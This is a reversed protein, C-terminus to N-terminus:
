DRENARWYLGLSSRFAVSRVLGRKLRLLHSAKIKEAGPQEESQSSMLGWQVTEIPRISPFADYKELGGGELIMTAEEAFAATGMDDLELKGVKHQTQVLYHVIKKLREVPNKSEPICREIHEISKYVILHIVPSLDGVNVLHDRLLGVQADKVNFSSDFAIVLDAAQPVISNGDVGSAVLIVGLRGRSANPVSRALTGPRSYKVRIGQLYTEIIDHLRGSRAVIAIHVDKHRVSELFRRLFQFKASCGEAWTVEMEAAEQGQSLGREGDIDQHTTINRVQDLMKRIKELNKYSPDEDKLFGDIEKEYHRIVSVYQDRVRASMSLTIVFEMEKLIPTLLTTKRSKSIDPRFSLKSTPKQPTLRATRVPFSSLEAEKMPPLELESQNEEIRTGPDDPVGSFSQAIHNASNESGIITASQGDPETSSKTTSPADLETPSRTSSKKNEATDEDLNFSPLEAMKAARMKRLRLGFASGLAKRPAERDSITPDSVSTPVPSTAAFYGPRPLVRESTATQPPSLATNVSPASSSHRSKLFDNARAAELDSAIADSLSVPFPPLRALYNLASSPAFIVSPPPLRDSAIPESATPTTVPLSPTKESSSLGSFAATTPSKKESMKPAYLLASLGSSLTGFM